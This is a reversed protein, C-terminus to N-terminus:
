VRDQAVNSPRQQHPSGRATEEIRADIASWQVYRHEMPVEGRVRDGGRQERPDQSIYIYIYTMHSTCLILIYM